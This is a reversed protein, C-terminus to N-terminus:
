EQRIRYDEWLVNVVLYVFYVKIDAMILHLQTVTNHKLTGEMKGCRRRGGKKLLLLMGACGNGLSSLKKDKVELLRFWYM